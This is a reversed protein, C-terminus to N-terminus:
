RVVKKNEQCPPIEIIEMNELIKLVLISGSMIKIELKHYTLKM